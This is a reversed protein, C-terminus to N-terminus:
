QWWKPSENKLLESVTELDRKELEWELIGAKENSDIQPLKGCDKKTIREALCFYITDNALRRSSKYAKSIDRLAKDKGEFDLSCYIGKRLLYLSKAFVKYTYGVDWDRFVALEKRFKWTNIFFYKIDTITSSLSYYKTFIKDLFSSHRQELFNDMEKTWEEYTIAKDEALQGIRDFMDDKKRIKSLIKSLVSVIM